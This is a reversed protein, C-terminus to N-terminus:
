MQTKKLNLLKVPNDFVIHIENKTNFLMCKIIQPWKINLIRNRKTKGPELLTSPVYYTSHVNRSFPIITQKLLVSYWKMITIMWKLNLFKIGIKCTHLLWCEVQLWVSFIYKLHSTLFCTFAVPLGPTWGKEM